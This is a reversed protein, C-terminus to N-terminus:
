GLYSIACTKTRAYFLLAEQGQEKFPSGSDRFGGFPHHVDWGSTPLNVAVQGTQARDLFVNASRLDRTFIAASLGYASDNVADCAADFGDVVSVTLVPGFVEDRWIAMDRSVDTLVTPQIFSGHHLREGTPPGGGLAVTAGDDRARSIHDLVTRQQAASVVPGMTTAPDLGPGVQLAEIRPLLREIVAKAIPEDLVLRSTATCRQGAQAFAAAVVTSVALDLDADRMVVTANKGGMETQVRVNRGNLRTAIQHGVSNSGTFTVGAVRRDSLLPESIQQGRGTVVSLVTTPLGADLLARALHLSVLPTETAPKLVVANGAMLAPALKRAPTLLPDNWPTIALVIGIPEYRVSTMTSPRADYLSYGWSYRAMGGYYEFFDAAKTVEVEAEALTKGMERVLDSAITSRRERLLRAAGALIAGRELANTAGWQKAGAEAADYARSIDRQDLAPVRAVLTRLDSPDYVPLWSDSLSGQWDGGVLASLDTITTM